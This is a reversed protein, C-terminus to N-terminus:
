VFSSMGGMLKARNGNWGTATPQTIGQEMLGIAFWRKLENVDPTSTTRNYSAITVANRLGGLDTLGM